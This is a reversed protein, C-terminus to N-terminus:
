RGREAEEIAWLADAEGLEENTLFDRGDDECDLPPAAPLRPYSAYYESLRGHQEAHVREREDRRLESALDPGTM